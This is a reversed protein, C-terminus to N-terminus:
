HPKDGTLKFLIEKLEKQYQGIKEEALKLKLDSLMEGLNFDDPKLRFLKHMTKRDAIRQVIWKDNKPTVRYVKEM